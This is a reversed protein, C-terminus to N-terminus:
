AEDLGTITERVKDHEKCILLLDAGAQFALLAGKAVPMQNEIAGMELDDTVVLGAYGLEDRLLDTLIRSSLTAPHEPDLEPYVTHSTMLAAVGAAIAARFPPLDEAALRAAEKTIAFGVQHPDLRASGLGPFHKGCAAVGAGQMARIVLAGLRAVTAAEGGLSRRTMFFGEGAPAVDLVPAFNFNIGVALLEAACTAAYDGLGTEPDAAEALLRQDPFQSWPPPLRTVSGGEQDIAILAPAGTHERCALDLDACLRRLQRPDVVNRRFLIFNNVGRASILERTSDDLEPGPLGIMLLAGSPITPKPM